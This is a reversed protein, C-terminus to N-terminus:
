AVPDKILCYYAVLESKPGRMTKSLSYGAIRTGTIQRLWGTVSQRNVSGDSRHAGLIHETIKPDLDSAKVPEGRHVEWWVDLIECLAQRNPDGAKIEAVRDVPDRMGLTLLPDRVWGCWVEYSGLPRGCPITGKNQRGWRWITLADTLLDARAIAIDGLFGPAFKREEPNEMQADLRTVILRRAMDESPQVGNGTIGIFTRVHLPVMKTQGMVRVEAPNETLASALIDSKLEKANFNDLFIAPRAQVLAATLRKDFEDADHGSTFASPPAGSAIICIAKVLMGKGTGAGSFSPAECLFGPALELCPRCVATLLAVAFSSEDLGAPKSPDIVEVELVSDPIREGDAFPFTCFAHRIRALAAKADEESPTDPVSLTPINHCWLGTTSDYGSASRISGDEALIPTTTIGRFPKLGWRGALGNLYLVAVDNGLSVPRPGRKTVVVPNCIEHALVRVSEKTVEIAHPMDGAESILRVPWNGNFLFDEREAIMKALQKATATLDAADIHLQPLGARREDIQPQPTDRYGLWEAIKKGEREGVMECLAPLGRSTKGGAHAQAADVAAEVRNAAKPDGAVSTIIEAIHKTEDASRGLRALFGGLVLGADHGGGSGPAPWHRVILCYAALERVRRQLEESDVAAPEGNKVWIIAEGSEHISGPFVTQAGKAGGVRLEVMMANPMPDKFRQAAKNVVGALATTYLFHSAPKSQRGFVADTAPLIYPALAIAEPCDLDIDTLGSSTPGLIVGINLPGGNFFQPATDATIVRAQWGNGTPGKERFPIPVPNWGREIYELAIELISQDTM